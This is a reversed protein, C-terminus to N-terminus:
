FYVDEIADSIITGDCKVILLTLDSSNDDEFFCEGEVPVEVVVCFLFETFKLKNKIEDFLFFLIFAFRLIESKRRGSEVTLFDDSEIHETRRLSIL